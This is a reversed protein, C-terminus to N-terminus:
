HKPHYEGELTCNQQADPDNQHTAVCARFPDREIDSSGGNASPLQHMREFESNSSQQAVAPGAAAFAACGTILALAYVYRSNTM